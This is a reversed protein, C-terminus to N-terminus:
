DLSTWFFQFSDVMNNMSITDRLFFTTDDVYASYLYCRDFITLGTIDPKTKILLFLVELALIFLFTSIPDGQRAGKGLM